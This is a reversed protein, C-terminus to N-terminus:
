GAAALALLAAPVAIKAQARRSRRRAGPLRAGPEAEVAAFLAELHSLAAAGALREAAIALLLQGTAPPPGEADLFSSAAFAYAAGTLGAALAEVMLALATGKADGLPLMTGALAAAADTTPRGEADLAWGPPIPEGRQKAALIAGRAVRSLSLDIVVPPGHPRPFACAIPNTGFLPRRGGWPAIAAPTNAFMLGILGADALREVVLGLAGCHHSRHVAALAVGQERALPVLGAIALDLAPYAFGHAADIALVSPAPQAATPSAMGDVKGCSAQAAYAPLRSLGHGARGDAEALVLARAVSRANPESTRAAALIRVVLAEAEALSLRTAAPPPTM